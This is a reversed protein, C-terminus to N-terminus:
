NYSNNESINMCLQLSESIDFRRDHPVSAWLYKSKHQFPILRAYDSTMGRYFLSYLKYISICTYHPDSPTQHMYVCQPQVCARTSLSIFDNIWVGLVGTGVGNRSVLGDM